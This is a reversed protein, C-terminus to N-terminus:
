YERVGKNMLGGRFNGWVVEGESGTAYCRLYGDYTAILIELMGDGDVDAILPTAEGGAPLSFKALKEFEVSDFLVLEGGETLFGVQPSGKGLVDAIFATASITGLTFPMSEPDPYERHLWLGDAEGWWSTGIAVTGDPCVVPSSFLGEIGITPNEFEVSWVENGMLDLVHIISYSEAMYILPEGDRVCVFASAHIGSPTSTRFKWLVKGNKGNIAYFNGNRSGILVDDVKDGNVRYLAPSAIFANSEPWEWEGPDHKAKFKWFKEGTEGDLTYLEGAETAFCVDLTGDRNFDALAPTGEIDGRGKFSWIEEYDHNYCFLTDKDGGFYFYEHTISIGNVDSDWIRGRLIHEKIEGTAADLIYVGDYEDRFGAYNEGNSAIFINGDYQQITTRFTTLGIFQEWLLEFEIEERAEGVIGMRGGDGAIGPSYLMGMMLIVLIFRGIHM